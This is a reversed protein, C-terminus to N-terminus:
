LIAEYNNILQFFTKKYLNLTVPDKSKQNFFDQLGDTIEEKSNSLYLIKDVEKLFSKGTILPDYSFELNSDLDLIDLFYKQNSTNLLADTYWAANVCNYVFNSFNKYAVIKDYVMDVAPLKLDIVARDLRLLRPVQRDSLALNTDELSWTLCNSNTLNTNSNVECVTLCLKSSLLKASHFTTWLDNKVLLFRELNNSYIAYIM